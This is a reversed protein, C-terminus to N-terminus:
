RDNPRVVHMALLNVYIFECFRLPNMAEKYLDEASVTVVAAAPIEEKHHGNEVIPTATAEETPKYGCHEKMYAYYDDCAEQLVASTAVMHPVLDPLTNSSSADSQVNNGSLVHSFSIDIWTNRARFKPRFHPMM